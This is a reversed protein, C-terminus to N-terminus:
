GGGGGRGGGGRGRGGGGGPGGFGGGPGGGGFGSFPITSVVQGDLVIELATAAPITFSNGNPGNITRAETQGLRLVVDNAREAPVGRGFMRSLDTSQQNPTLDTSWHLGEGRAQTWQEPSFTATLRFLPLRMALQQLTGRRLAQRRAEKADTLEGYVVSGGMQIQLDNLRGALWSMKELDDALPANAGPGRRGGPGAAAPQTAPTEADVYPALWADLQTQVEVPLAAARWVEPSKSRFRLFDGAEGWSVSLDAGAAGPGMGPGGRGFGGARPACAASLADLASVPHAASQAGGGRGGRGFGGGGGFPPWYTDAIISRGSAKAVTEQLQWLEGRGSGEPLVLAALAAEEEKSLTRADAQAQTAQQAQQQQRATRAAQRDVPTQAPTPTPAAGLYGQLATQQRGRLNGSALIGGVRGLM